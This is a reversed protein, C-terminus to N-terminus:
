KFELAHVFSAAKEVEEQTLSHGSQHWFMTTEAGSEKLLNELARTNEVPIIPDNEGATILVNKGHLVPRPRPQFPLMPHMLVAHTIELFGSLLFSGAINAGNSYGVAVIKKKDFGYISATNLVFERLQATRFKLDEQDFVGERLRRFFRPMGNELVQGRPSLYNYNEGFYDRLFMMDDENGGTGHLLLLTPVESVGARSAQFRHQFLVETM